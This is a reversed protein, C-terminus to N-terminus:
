RIVVMKQTSSVQGNVVLNYYYMGPEFQSNDVMIFGFRNDVKYSRMKQGSSSYITLEGLTAGEPLSFTIKVENKSPNPVPNSLFNTPKEESKALGLTGRGDCADCPLTGPLNYIKLGTTTPVTAIFTTPNISHVKFLYPAPDM